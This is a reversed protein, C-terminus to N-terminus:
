RRRKLLRLTRRLDEPLGRIKTNARPPPVRWSRGNNELVRNVVYYLGFVGEGELKISSSTELLRQLESSTARTWSEIIAPDPKKRRLTRVLMQPAPTRASTPPRRGRARKDQILKKLDESSGSGFAPSLLQVTLEDRYSRPRAKGGGIRALKDLTRMTGRDGGSVLCHVQGKNRRIAAIDSRCKSIRRSHPPADGIIVVIKQANRKWRLQRAVKLAADVAEPHDGGGDATVSALFALAEFHGIGLRTSRTTYDDGRDRYTILSIRTSPVLEEILEIMELLDRKADALLSGMSGTSDFLFAIELGQKRLKAVTKKFGKSVNKPLGRRQPEGKGTGLKTTWSELAMDRLDTEAGLGSATEESVDPMEFDSAAITAASDDPVEIEPEEVVLTDEEETEDDDHIEELSGESNFSMSRMGDGDGEDPKQMAILVLLLIITHLLLSAAVWPSRKAARAASGRWESMALSVDIYLTKPTLGTEITTLGIVFAEGPIASAMRSTRWMGIRITERGIPKLILQGDALMSARVHRSAIGAAEVRVDAEAGSGIM